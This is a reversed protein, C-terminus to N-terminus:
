RLYFIKIEGSGSKAVCEIWWQLMDKVYNSIDQREEEPFGRFQGLFHINKRFNRKIRLKMVRIM